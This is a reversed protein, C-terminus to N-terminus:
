QSLYQLFPWCATVLLLVGHIHMLIDTLPIAADGQLLLDCVHVIRQLVCSQMMVHTMPGPWLAHMRWHSGAMLLGSGWCGVTAPLFGSPVEQTAEWVLILLAM